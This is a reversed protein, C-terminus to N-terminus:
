AQAWCNVYIYTGHERLSLTVPWANWSNPICLIHTVYLTITCCLCGSNELPIVLRLGYNLPLLQIGQCRSLDFRQNSPHISKKAYMKTSTYFSVRKEVKESLQLLNTHQSRCISVTYGRQGVHCIAPM